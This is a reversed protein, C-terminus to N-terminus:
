AHGMGQAMLEGLTAAAGDVDGFSFRVARTRNVLEAMAAMSPPDGVAESGSEMLATFAAEPSLPEVSVDRQGAVRNAVVVLGPAVSAQPPESGAHVDLYRVQRSGFTLVPREMVAPFNRAVVDFSGSKVSASVSFAHITDGGPGLAVLDDALHQWGRAALQLAFTSKGAGTPGIIVAGRGNRAVAAGHLIAGVGRHRLGEVLIINLALRRARGRGVHKQVCAGNLFFSVTQDGHSQIALEIRFVEGADNAAVKLPALTAALRPRLWACDCSVDILAGGCVRYCGLTDVSALAVDENLEITRVDCPATPAAALLGNAVLESRSPLWDDGTRSAAEPLLALARTLPQHLCVSGGVVVAELFPDDLAAVAEVVRTM